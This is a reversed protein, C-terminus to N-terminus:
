ACRGCTPSSAGFRYVSWDRIDITGAAWELERSSPPHESKEDDHQADAGEISRRECGIRRSRALDNQDRAPLAVPRAHVFVLLRHPQQLRHEVRRGVDVVHAGFDMEVAPGLVLAREVIGVCDHGDRVPLVAVLVRGHGEHRGRAHGHHFSLHPAAAAEDRKVERRKSRITVARLDELPAAAVEVPLVLGPLPVPIRGDLRRRCSDLQAHGCM